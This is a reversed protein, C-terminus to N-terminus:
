RKVECTLKVPEDRLNGECTAIDADGTSEWTTTSGSDGGAQCLMFERSCAGDLEVAGGCSCLLAAFLITLKMM